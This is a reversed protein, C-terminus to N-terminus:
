RIRFLLILLISLVIASTASAAIWKVLRRQFEVRRRADCYSLTTQMILSYLSPWHRPFRRELAASLRRRADFLPNDISERIERFNILSLESIADADCHRRAEFDSFARERSGPWRSLSNLLEVSDELACNMGQGYFPAFTHCADGVLVAVDDLFWPRVRVQALQHVPQSRLAREMDELVDAVDSFSKRWISCATGSRDLFGFSGAGYDPQFIMFRFSGHCTPVALLLRDMRPWMHFQHPSLKCDLDGAAVEFEKYGWGISQRSYESGLRKVISRRVVSSSGDAGVVFDSQALQYECRDEGKRVLAIRRQEPDVNACRVGWNMQVRPHELAAELLANCLDSREVAFIANRGELGCNYAQFTLKGDSRHVMRGELEVARSMISSLIGLKDLVEIGRRALTMSVSSDGTVACALDRHEELVQVHMGSRAFLTAVAAGSIGGGIVYVPM